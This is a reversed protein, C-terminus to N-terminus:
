NQNWYWQLSHIALQKIVWKDRIGADSRM